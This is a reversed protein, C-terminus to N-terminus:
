WEGPTEGGARTGLARWTSLDVSNTVFRVSGDLLLVNVGRTHLSRATHFGESTLNQEGTAPNYTVCDVADANPPYYHNYSGSRIEGTAWLFGRRNNVNWATAANCKSEEVPYTVFAYVLQKDAPMAGIAFERGDGLTSESFAITNSAGDRIDDYTHKKKAEFAGDANWPSGLPAAGRTTGSGLCAAYNTPGLDTVGYGSSISKQRDAPCLFLPITQGAAIRNEPTIQFTGVSYLPVELDMQNYIATQELMPNLEALVSWSYFYAPESRGPKPKAPFAPPLKLTRTEYHILALGIQKLNNACKTKSAAARVKQVAPLLLGVLVAIIAIVVLLEILTFARRAPM